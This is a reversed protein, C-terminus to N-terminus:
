GTDVKRPIRELATRSCGRASWQRSVWALGEDVIDDAAM